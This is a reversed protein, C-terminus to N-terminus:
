DEEEGILKLRAKHVRDLIAKGNVDFTFEGDRYLIKGNVMTFIVDGSGCSNIVASIPNLAIVQMSNSLDIATIDALKGEELTGIKDEMHLVKAGGLTGLELAHSSRLYRRANVCRSILMAFRMEHLMGQNESAMPSDSGLGVNISNELFEAVPAAGMGLQAETGPCVCVGVGYKRLVNVDSDSVQVPNVCTVNDTDFAGWNKVFEIPTVGFPMWPPIDAYSSEVDDVAHQSFMSSGRQIFDLEEMSSGAHVQMPLNYKRAIESARRFMLPHTEFTHHPVIGVQILDSAYKESWDNIDREAVKAAHEVRETDLGGCDRYVIGRLGYDSMAALSSETSGIDALTTTGTRIAELCGIRAADAKEQKTLKSNLEFTKLLWTEYPEDAIAGRLLTRETRTHLNVFGPMIAAKGLDIVEEDPYHRRLDDISDVEVIKEGRVLVGAFKM